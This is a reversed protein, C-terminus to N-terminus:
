KLEFYLKRTDIIKDSYLVYTISVFVGFIDLPVDYLAATKANVRTDVDKGSFM